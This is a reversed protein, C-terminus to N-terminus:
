KINRLKITITGDKKKDIKKYSTSVTYNIELASAKQTNNSIEDRTIEEGSENIFTIKIEKIYSMLINTSTKESKEDTIRKSDLKLLTDGEDNKELYLEGKYLSRENPTENDKYYYKFNLLETINKEEDEKLPLIETTGMLRNSLQTLGRDIDQQLYTERGQAEMRMYNTSFLSFIVVSVMSFMGMVLIVEILTFGKKYRMMKDCGM